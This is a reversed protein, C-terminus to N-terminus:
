IVFLFRTKLFSFNFYIEKNTSIFNLTHQLLLQQEIVNGKLSLFTILHFNYTSNVSIEIMHLSIRNNKTINLNESKLFYKLILNLNLPTRKPQFVCYNSGFIFFIKRM